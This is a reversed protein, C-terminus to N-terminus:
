HHDCGVRDCECAEANIRRWLTMPDKRLAERGEWYGLMYAKGTEEPLGNAKGDRFGREQPTM